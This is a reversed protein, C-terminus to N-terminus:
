PALFVVLVIAKRWAWTSMSCLRALGPQRWGYWQAGKTIMPLVRQRPWANGASSERPERPKAHRAVAPITEVLELFSVVLEELVVELEESVVELEELVVVLEELVVVLEESVVELEESVVELEELVVELEKM